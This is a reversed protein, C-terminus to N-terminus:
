CGPHWRKNDNSIGNLSKRKMGALTPRHTVAMAEVDERCVTSAGQVGVHPRIPATVLLQSELSSVHLSLATYQWGEM